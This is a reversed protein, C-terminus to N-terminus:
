EEEIYDTITGDANVFFSKTGYIKGEADVTYYDFCDQVYGSENEAQVRMFYQGPPLKQFTVTPIVINDKQYLIQTFQYDSALLFSYTINEGDPDYSAEWQVTINDGEEAPTDVYFPWPKELSLQYYGYNEEVEGALAGILIDYGNEDLRAYEQDPERYLYPRVVAAYQQVMEGVRDDTLYNERLDQVADTLMERYTEERFIRNFLSIHLFQTMGQEWSQGEVYNKMRYHTRSFSADNDWSIFYWKESNLPSYIYYNRSGVDYNGTLIHFAMWYCINDMDFHKEVIEEIPISYDNVQDITRLLKTHDDNGKIELYEEFKKEDYGEETKLKLDDYPLWEFFNIKYLHGRNDLGHNKLYTKNIQEVQTYLGYDTFTGNGGETEDKVYLHVFQTRASMMQPVEKMLDYAMKNSFRLADGIHKNLALTRQGRWAGMGEKIRIKYNKQARRSSTQGRIQVTANASAAGYGFEGEVPGNEDGIQLIAECNYRALDNDSYYYTDYTNIETWTHNTNDAENGQRVTLYMTVVSTEDDQAYLSRNDEITEEQANLEEKAAPTGRKAEEAEETQINETKELSPEQIRGCGSLLILLLIMAAGTPGHYKKLWKKKPAEARKRDRDDLYDCLRAFIGQETGPIFAKRCLLFYPLRKTYWELRLWVILYFVAGGLLFGLGFYEVAGFLNQLVTVAVSVSAFALTGALAGGYDEFYLLILMMSNSMAYLGYGVCLIRFIGISLDNFGLSAQQLIISGFVLFLITSILQKHGSFTLEQELIGLMEEEAQEIDRIAGKDNFLSYYNRYAPYFRVEVSTVFNITTILISFFAFLAPVDHSPAGYFLGEVQVRLPGFYMIVLHAFLGINLFGGSLALSHYKDFWRLFAYRSGESDPFYDLLLKYYWVMMTGYAIIVCLLLSEVSVWGVVVFVLALFFGLMLSVAFALVIGQFDKLATLYVMEMWVVILILAFWLCLIQELFSVGSFWLFIGYLVGGAVLMISCSGYFSPMIKEPKEEYLMDSIYRTVAMNFWSTVTLSVLLSYTIMCNLLERDHANMGALRAALSMGVLLIVGLIMPGACIVGAYGYARCLHFVGKKSFLRKLSFGIGAM